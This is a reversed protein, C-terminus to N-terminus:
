QRQEQLKKPLFVALAQRLHLNGEATDWDLPDFGWPLTVSRSKPFCALSFTWAM